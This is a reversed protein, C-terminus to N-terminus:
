KDAVVFVELEEVFYRPKMTALYKKKNNMFPFLYHKFHSSQTGFIGLFIKLVSVRTSQYDKKKKVISTSEHTYEFYKKPNQTCKIENWFVVKTHIKKTTPPQAYSPTRTTM